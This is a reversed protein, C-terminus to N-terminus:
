RKTAIPIVPVAERVCLGIMVDLISLIYLVPKLFNNLIFIIERLHHCLSNNASGGVPLILIIQVLAQASM